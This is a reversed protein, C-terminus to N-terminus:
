VGGDNHSEDCGGCLSELRGAQVARVYVETAWFEKGCAACTAKVLTEDLTKMNQWRREPRKLVSVLFDYLQSDSCVKTHMIPKM